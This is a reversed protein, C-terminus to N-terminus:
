GRFQQAIGKDTDELRQATNRLADAIEHILDRAQEFGPRLQDFREAYAASSEGEWEQQLDSLYRNMTTIVDNVKDGEVDYDHAKSRMQEPTIRITGAM